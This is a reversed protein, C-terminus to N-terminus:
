SKIDVSLEESIGKDQVGLNYWDMNRSLYMITSLIVFLGVSGAILAYDELQLLVFIYTYLGVLIAFLVFVSNKKEIVKLSYLSIMSITAFSAILYSYSFPIHESFSLLLYYFLSLALGILSYQIPHIKNKYMIEFFFFVMFTLAIILMAYKASRMNKQYHDVGHILNVGFSSNGVLKANDNQFAAPFTRNHENLRWTCTFGEDSIESQPSRGKFSPSPWDSKLNIQTTAGFPTFSMNETGKLGVEFDFNILEKDKDLKLTHHFGGRYFIKNIPTGKEFKFKSGNFNGTIDKSIGNIDEVSASLIAKDFEIIAEEHKIKEFEKLNFDGDVKLDAEYVIAEYIGLKKIEPNLDGNINLNNPLLHYWGSNRFVTGDKYTEDFYYPVSLVPGYMNQAGGWTMAIEKKTNESLSQREWILGQLLGNPILLLLILLLIFGIKFYIIKQSKIKM